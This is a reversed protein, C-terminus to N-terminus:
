RFRLDETLLGRRGNLGVILGIVGGVRLHDGQEIKIEQTERERERKREGV